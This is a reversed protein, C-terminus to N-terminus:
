IGRSQKKPCIKLIREQDKKSRYDRREFDTLKRCLQSNNCIYQTSAIKCSYRLFHVYKKDEGLNWLDKELYNPMYWLNM